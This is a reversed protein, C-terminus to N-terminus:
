SLMARLRASGALPAPAEDVPALLAAEQATLGVEDAGTGSTAVYTVSYSDDGVTESRVGGPNAVSPARLVMAVLVDKVLEVDLTGAAIRTDITAFRRRLLASGLRLLHELKAGEEFSSIPRGREEIDALTAFPDVM